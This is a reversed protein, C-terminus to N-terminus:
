IGLFEAGCLMLNLGYKGQCFEAICSMMDTVLCLAGPNM